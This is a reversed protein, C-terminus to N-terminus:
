VLKHFLVRIIFTYTKLWGALNEKEQKKVNGKMFIVKKDKIENIVEVDKVGHFNKICEETQTLTLDDDPITKRCKAQTMSDSTEEALSRKKNGIGTGTNECNM